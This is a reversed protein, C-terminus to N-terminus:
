DKIELFPVDNNNALEEIRKGLFGYVKVNPSDDFIKEGQKESLEGYIYVEELSCCNSFAKSGISSVGEEIVIKRLKECGAFLGNPIKKLTGPIVIEELSECNRFASVGITKLGHPLIIKKLRSCGKFAQSGITEVTSPITIEQLMSCDCFSYSGISRLKEPMIVEQLSECAKLVSSNTYFLNNPLTDLSNPLIVKKLKLCNMFVYEGLFKISEPIVIEKLEECSCFAEDELIEIGEQLKIEQLSSYCFARKSIKKLQKSTHIKEINKCGIFAYSAISKISEDMIYESENKEGYLLLTNNSIIEKPLNKCGKFAGPEIYEINSPFHITSIDLNTCNKFADRGIIKLSEPLRINELQVCDMFASSEITEVGDEFEVTKLLKCGEFVYIPIEKLTSPIKLSVIKTNRQFIQKEWDIETVTNPIVVDGGNGLYKKLVGNKIKFEEQETENKKYYYEGDIELVYDDKSWEKKYPFVYSVKINEGTQIDRYAIDINDTVDYEWNWRGDGGDARKDFYGCFQSDTITPFGSESYVIDVNRFSWDEYFCAMKLLPFRNIIELTRDGAEVAIEYISNKSKKESEIKINNEKLYEKCKNIENLYGKIKLICWTVESYNNDDSNICFDEKKLKIYDLTDDTKKNAERM